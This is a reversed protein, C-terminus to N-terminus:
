WFGLIPWLRSFHDSRRSKTKLPMNMPIGSLNAFVGDTGLVGVIIGWEALSIKTSKLMFERKEVKTALELDISKITEVFTRYATQFRDSRTVAENLDGKEGM